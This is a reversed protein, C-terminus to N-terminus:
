SADWKSGGPYEFGCCPCKQKTGRPVIYIDAEQRQEAIENMLEEFGFDRLLTAVEDKLQSM